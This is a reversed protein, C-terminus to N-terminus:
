RKPKFQYAIGFCSSMGLVENHAMGADWLFGMVEFGLGLTYNVPKGLVGTRIWIRQNISYELGMKYLMDFGNQKEVECSVDFDSSASWNFGLIFISPIKSTSEMVTISSQEPNSIYFGLKVADLPAYIIGLGAYLQSGSGSQSLHTNQFNLQFSAHLNPALSRAYAIGVKNEQYLSYGYQNVYASLVGFRFPVIGLASKSSLENVFYPLHYAVSASPSAAQSIGAPNLIPSWLDASTVGTAGRGLSAPSNVFISQGFVGVPFCLGILLLLIRMICTYILYSLIKM